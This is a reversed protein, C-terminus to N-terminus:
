RPTTMSTRTTSPDKRLPIRTRRIFVPPDYSMSSMPTKQGFDTGRSSSDTPSTPKTMALMFFILSQWIPSVTM